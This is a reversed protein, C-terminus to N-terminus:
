STEDSPVQVNPIFLSCTHVAEKLAGGVLRMNCNRANKSKPGLTELTECIESSFKLIPNRCSKSLSILSVLTIRDKLPKNKVFM